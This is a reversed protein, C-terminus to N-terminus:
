ISIKKRFDKEIKLVIQNLDDRIQGNCTIANQIERSDFDSNRLCILKRKGIEFQNFKNLIKILEKYHEIDILLANKKITAETNKLQKKLNQVRNNLATEWLEDTLINLEILSSYVENYLEIQKKGIFESKWKSLSKYSILLTILPTLIIVIDKTFEM